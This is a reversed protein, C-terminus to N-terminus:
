LCIFMGIVQGDKDVIPVMHVMYDNTFVDPKIDKIAEDIQLKLDDENKHWLNM